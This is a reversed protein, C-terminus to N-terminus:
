LEQAALIKTDIGETTGLTAEILYRIFVNGLNAALLVYWLQDSIFFSCDETGCM